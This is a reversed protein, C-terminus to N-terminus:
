RAAQAIWERSARRVPLPLTRELRREMDALTGSALEKRWAREARDMAAAISCRSRPGDQPVPMNRTIETCRFIPDGGEIADVVDLLSIREPPRALRYGGTRGPTSGVLGARAMSQLAKALYATPVGCYEAMRAAPLSSGEPLGTLMVAAHLGWEVQDGLKM